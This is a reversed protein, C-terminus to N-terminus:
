PNELFNESVKECMVKFEEASVPLKSLAQQAVEIITDKDVGYLQAIEEAPRCRGDSSIGFLLILVDREKASLDEFLDKIKEIM